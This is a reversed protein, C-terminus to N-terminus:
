CLGYNSLPTVLNSGNIDSEVSKLRIEARQDKMELWSVYAIDKQIEVDVRGLPNGNDIKITQDFKNDLGYALKVEASDAATYWAMATWANNSALAPGNVPCGNIKWEDNSDYINDQNDNGYMYISIDRIEDDSRDRYATLMGQTTRISSTQCCDCVKNDIEFDRIEITTKHVLGGRVTMPLSKNSDQPNKTKTNRGDLWSAYFYQDNYNSISVFGHEAPVGDDHLNKPSSWSVGGNNSLSIKIDYDYTGEDSKKLWHTIIHNPNNPDVELSSFDAWNVFWDPGSSIGSVSLGDHLQYKMFYLSTTDNKSSTWVMYITDKLAYLNPTESHDDIPLHIDLVGPDIVSDDM